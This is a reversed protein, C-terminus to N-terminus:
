KKANGTIVLLAYIIGPLFFLLTLLLSIWFKNNIQDEYLFVALPPLLIALIVLLVTTEDAAAVGNKVDQKYQRLAQKVSKRQERKLQRREKGSMAALKAKYEAAAAKMDAATPTAGEETAPPPVGIAANTTTLPGCVLAVLLLFTFFRM